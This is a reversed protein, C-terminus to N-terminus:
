SKKSMSFDVAECFTSFKADFVGAGFGGAGNDLYIVVWDNGDFEPILEGNKSLWRYRDADKKLSEVECIIDLIASPNAAVYYQALKKAGDQEQDYQSTDITIVPYFDNEESAAGVQWDPDNESVQRFANLNDWGETAEALIKLESYDKM